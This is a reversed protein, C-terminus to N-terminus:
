DVIPAAPDAPDYSKRAFAYAYVHRAGHERLVEACANATAGTTVVDDVLGVTLGDLRQGRYAFAGAVNSRRKGPHLGVQRDTKKMRELLGDPRPWALASVLDDAQNFGRERKRSRHLPVALAFDLPTQDRLAAMHRAMERAVSRVYRYKLEHIAARAPGAMEFVARVGDLAQLHYCRPCNASADPWEACCFRCRGSGDARVTSSVCTACLLEDFKGCGVCRSPYVFRGAESLLKRLM